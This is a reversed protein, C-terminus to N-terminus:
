VKEGWAEGEVMRRAQGHRVAQGGMGVVPPRLHMPTNHTPCHSTHSPRQHVPLLPIPLCKKPLFSSLIPRHPLPIVGIPRRRSCRNGEGVWWRSGAPPVM